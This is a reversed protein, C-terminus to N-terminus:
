DKLTIGFKRNLDRFAFGAQQSVVANGLLRLLDERYNYGNISCGLGSEITRPFEWEHQQEGPRTPWRQLGSREITQDTERTDRRISEIGQLGEIAPNAMPESRKKFQKEQERKVKRYERFINSNVLKEKCSRIIEPQIGKGDFRWFGPEDPNALESSGSTQLTRRWNTGEDVGRGNRIHDANEVETNGVASSRGPVFSSYESRSTGEQDERNERDNRGKEIQESLYTHDMALIFLRKRQHPAGVEEAAYIGAEVLYGMKRLDRSVEEFGLSIHGEVNEFWCWFPKISQVIRRIYPWLHRPDDKGKRNGAFSFPQCPYGGVIGHIKHRFYRYPFTKVDAWFPRSDLLGQEMYGILNQIVFAEIEVYAAVDIEVSNEVLGNELGLTGPGISIIRQRESWPTAVNNM